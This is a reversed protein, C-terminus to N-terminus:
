PTTSGRVEFGVEIDNFTIDTWGGGNPRTNLILREYIFSSSLALIPGQVTSNAERAILRGYASGGSEKGVKSWVQVGHLDWSAFATSLTGLEYYDKFGEVSGGVYDTSNPITENVMDYNDIKDGDSGDLQITSSDANPLLYQVWSDGIFDTNDTGSGDMVVLDDCHADNVDQDQGGGVEVDTAVTFGGSTTDGVFQTGMTAGNVRLEATGVSGDFFIKAEVWYWTNISAGPAAVAVFTQDSAENGLSWGDTGVHINLMETTGNNLTLFETGAGTMTGIDIPYLAIGVIVTNGTMAYNYTFFGGSQFGGAWDGIRLGRGHRADVPTFRSVQVDDYRTVDEHEFSDAILLAM